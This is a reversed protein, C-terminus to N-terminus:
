DRVGAAVIVSGVSQALITLIEAPIRYYLCVQKVFCDVDKELQGFSEAYGRAGPSRGRGRADWAFVAFDEFGLQDVLHQLRGSQEHGRHFLIIAREGGDTRAPWHRYFLNVGDASEFWNESPKRTPNKRPSVHRM